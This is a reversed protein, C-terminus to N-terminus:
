TQNTFLLAEQVLPGESSQEKGMFLFVANLPLICQPWRNDSAQDRALLDSLLSDDARREKFWPHTPHSSGLRIHGKRWHRLWFRDPFASLWIVTVPLHVSRQELVKSSTPPSRRVHEPGFLIFQQLCLLHSPNCESSIQRKDMLWSNIIVVSTWWVCPCM